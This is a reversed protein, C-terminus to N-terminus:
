LVDDENFIWSFKADNVSNHIRGNQYYKQTNSVNPIDITELDSICHHYLQRSFNLINESNIQEKSINDAYQQKKNKLRDLIAEDHNDLINSLTDAYKHILKIYSSQSRLYESVATLIPMQKLKIKELENIFPFRHKKIDSTIESESVFPFPLKERKFNDSYLRLKVNMENVNIQWKKHAIIAQKNFQGYLWHLADEKYEGLLNLIKAEILSNWKNEVSEQSSKISFKKLVIYLKDKLKDSFIFNYYHEITKVPSHLKLIDYKQEVNKDNWGYFISNTPIKSTTHLIFYQFTDTEEKLFNYLTKWFDISDSVLNHTDLHLKTETATTGDYIDGYCELWITQNPESNFYSEIAILVQYVYGLYQPTAQNSFVEGM